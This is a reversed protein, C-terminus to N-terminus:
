LTFSTLTINNVKRVFLQVFNTERKIKELSESEYFNRRKTTQRRNNNEVEGVNGSIVIILPPFWTVVIAKCGLCHKRCVEITDRLCISNIGTYRNRSGCVHESKENNRPYVVVNVAFVSAPPRIRELLGRLLCRVDRTKNELWKTNIPLPSLKTQQFIKCVCFIPQRRNKRSDRQGNSTHRQYIAATAVLVCCSKNSHSKVM